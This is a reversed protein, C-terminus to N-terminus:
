EDHAAVSVVVTMEISRYRGTLEWCGYTPLTVDIPMASRSGEHYANTADGFEIEDSAVDLRRATVTLAPEPETTWDYDKNWWLMKEGFALQSWRGNTPLSTWSDITAIGTAIM